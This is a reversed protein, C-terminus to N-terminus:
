SALSQHAPLSWALPGIAHSADDEESAMGMLEFLAQTTQELGKLRKLRPRLQGLDAAALEAQVAHRWRVQPSNRRPPQSAACSARSPTACRCACKMEVGASTAAATDAMLPKGNEMEAWALSM